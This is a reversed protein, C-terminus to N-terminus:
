NFIYFYVNTSISQPFLAAFKLTHWSQLACCHTVLFWYSRPIDITERSTQVKNLSRIARDPRPFFNWGRYLIFRFFDKRLLIVRGPVTTFTNGPGIAMKRPWPAFQSFRVRKGSSLYYFVVVSGVAGIRRGADPGNWRKVTASRWRVSTFSKKESSHLKSLVLRMGIIYM